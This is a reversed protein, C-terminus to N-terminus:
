VMVMNTNSDIRKNTQKKEFSRGFNPYFKYVGLPSNFRLFAKVYLVVEGNKQKSENQVCYEFPIILKYFLEKGSVHSNM